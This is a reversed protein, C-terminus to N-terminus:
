PEVGADRMERYWDWWAPDHETALKYITGARREGPRQKCETWKEECEQAKNATLTRSWRAFLQYGDEGLESYIACGVYFWDYYNVRRPDIYALAAEIKLRQNPGNDEPRYSVGNGADQDMVADTESNSAASSQAALKRRQHKVVPQRKVVEPKRALQTLWDPAEAIAADNLWVYHGKGPKVSPPGVVMGGQGRIDVAPALEGASNKILMGSPQRFYYHVSGSPSQAMLTLPMPGHEAELARLSAFGDVGHGDPTDVDVVFIENETGTPIGIGAQPWRRFVKALQEPDKTMGWRLGNTYKGATFSKKVKGILDAPFVYWDRNTAYELAADLMANRPASM